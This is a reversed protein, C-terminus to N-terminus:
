APVEAELRKLIAPVDEAKVSEFFRENIQVATPFGCAGLCEVELVTWLGNESIEGIETGTQELFERLVEDAGCLNCSINTCVQILFRGLPQLNYMTYFTAVGRVYAPALLLREAVEDMAEPPLYGRIEHVIHLAPLLAARRDEYRSLVKELRRLYEGEFLPLDPARTTLQYPMTGAVSPHGGDLPRAGVYDTGRIQAETLDFEGTIGAFGPNRPRIKRVKGDDNTM